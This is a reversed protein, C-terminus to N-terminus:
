AMPAYTAMAKRPRAPEGVEDGGPSHFQPSMSRSPNALLATRPPHHHHHAGGPTQTASSPVPRARRLKPMSSSMLGLSRAAPRERRAALVAWTLRRGVSPTVGITRVEGGVGGWTPAFR